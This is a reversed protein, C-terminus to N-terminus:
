VPHRDDARNSAPVAEFRRRGFLLFGLSVFLSFLLLGLVGQPSHSSGSGALLMLGFLPVIGLVVRWHVALRRVRQMM